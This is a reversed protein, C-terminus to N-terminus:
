GNLSYFLLPHNFFFNDAIIMVKLADMTGNGHVM